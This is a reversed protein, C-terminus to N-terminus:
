LASVAEDQSVRLQTSCGVQVSLVEQQLRGCEEQVRRLEEKCRLPFMVDYWMTRLLM